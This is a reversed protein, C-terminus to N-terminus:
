SEILDDLYERTFSGVLRGKEKGEKFFITTPLALISYHGVLDPHQDINCGVIDVCDAINSRNQTLFAKVQTCVDCWPAWFVILTNGEEPIQSIEKM